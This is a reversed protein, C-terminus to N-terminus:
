AGQPSVWLECQLTQTLAGDSIETAGNWLRITWQGSTASKTAVALHGSAARGNLRIANTHSIGAMTYQTSLDVTFGTPTAYTETTVISLPIMGVQRHYGGAIAHEPSFTVTNAM